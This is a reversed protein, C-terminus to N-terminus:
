LTSHNNCSKDRQISDICESAIKLQVSGDKSFFAFTWKLFILQSMDSNFRPLLYVILHLVGNSVRRYFKLPAIDDRSVILLAHFWPAVKLTAWHGVTIDWM